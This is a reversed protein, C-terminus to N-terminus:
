SLVPLRVLRCTYYSDLLRNAKEFMQLMTLEMIVLSLWYVGSISDRTEYVLIRNFVPFSLNELWLM